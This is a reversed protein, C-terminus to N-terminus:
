QTYTYRRIEEFEQQAYSSEMAGDDVGGDGFRCDDNLTLSMTRAVAKSAVMENVICVMTYVIAFRECIHEGSSCCSSNVRYQFM